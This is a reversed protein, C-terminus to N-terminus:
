HQRIAGKEIYGNCISIIVGSEYDETVNALRNILEEGMSKGGHGCSM